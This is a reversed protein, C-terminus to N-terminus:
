WFESSSWAIFPSSENRLEAKFPLIPLCYMALSYVMCIGFHKGRWWVLSISWSFEKLNVWFNPASFTYSFPFSALDLKYSYTSSDIIWLKSVWVLSYWLHSSPWLHMSIVLNLAQESRIVKENSALLHHGNCGVITVVWTTRAANM